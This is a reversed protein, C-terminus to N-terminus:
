TAESTQKKMKTHTHTNTKADTNKLIPVMELDKYCVHTSARRKTELALKQM